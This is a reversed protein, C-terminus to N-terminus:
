FVFVMRSATDRSKEFVVQDNWSISYTRGEPTSSSLVVTFQLSAVKHSLKDTTVRSATPMGSSSSAEKEGSKEEESTFSPEPSVKRSNEAASVSRSSCKVTYHVYSHERPYVHKGARSSAHFIM